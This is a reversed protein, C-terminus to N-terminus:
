VCEEHTHQNRAKSSMCDLFGQRYAGDASEMAALDPEADIDCDEWGAIFEHAVHAVYTTLEQELPALVARPPLVTPLENLLM